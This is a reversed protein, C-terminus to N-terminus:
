AYHPSLFKNSIFGGCNQVGRKVARAGKVKVRLQAADETEKCRAQLACIYEYIQIYTYYPNAFPEM